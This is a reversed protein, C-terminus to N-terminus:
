HAGVHVNSQFDFRRQQCFRYQLSMWKNKQCIFYFQTPSCINKELWFIQKPLSHDIFKGQFSSTWQQPVQGYWLGQNGLRKEFALQKQRLSFHDLLGRCPSFKTFLIFFPSIPILHVHETVRDPVPLLFDRNFKSMWTGVFKVTLSNM